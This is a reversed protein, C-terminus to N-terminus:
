VTSHVPSDISIHSSYPAQLVVNLQLTIKQQLQGEARKIAYTDKPPKNYVDVPIFAGCGVADLHGAVSIDWVAGDEDANSGGDKWVEKGHTVTTLVDKHIAKIGAVDGSTPKNHSRVFFGGIVVYDSHDELRLVGKWLSYDTPKGSGSDDWVKVWDGVPRLISGGNSIDKIILGVVDNSGNTTAPGLYYWGSEM